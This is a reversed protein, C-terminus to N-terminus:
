LKSWNVKGGALLHMHLHGVHQYKGGNFAFRFASLKKEKVIRQGAKFMEVIIGGHNKDVTLVSEVHSKPIILVHTESVPNIDNIAFVRETDLIPKTTIKGEAMQCFICDKSIMYKIRLQAEKALWKAKKLMKKGQPHCSHFPERCRM